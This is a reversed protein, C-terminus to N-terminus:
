LITILHKYNHITGFTSAYWNSRTKQLTFMIIAQMPWKYAIENNLKEIPSFVIFVLRFYQLKVTVRIRIAQTRSKHFVKFYCVIRPVTMIIKERVGRERIVGGGVSLVELIVAQSQSDLFYMHVWQSAIALRVLMDFVWCKNLFRRLNVCHKKSRDIKFQEKESIQVGRRVQQRM